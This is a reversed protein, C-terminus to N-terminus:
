LGKRLCRDPFLNFNQFGVPNTPPPKGRLKGTAYPQRLPILDALIYKETEMIKRLMKCDSQQLFRYFDTDDTFRLLTKPLSIALNRPTSEPYEETHLTLCFLPTSFIDCKGSAIHM